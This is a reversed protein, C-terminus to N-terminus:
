KIRTCAETHRGDLLGCLECGHRMELLLKRARAQGPTLKGRKTRLYHLTEDMLGRIESYALHLGEHLDKLQEMERFFEVQEPVVHHHFRSDGGLAVCLNVYKNNPNPSVGSTVRFCNYPGNLWDMARTIRAEDLLSKVTQGIEEASMKGIDEVPVLVYTADPGDALTKWKRGEALPHSSMLTM